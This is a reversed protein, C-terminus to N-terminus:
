MGFKTFYKNCISMANNFTLKESDFIEDTLQFDKMASVGLVVDAVEDPLITLALPAPLFMEKTKGAEYVSADLKNARNVLLIMAVPGLLESLRVVACEPEDNNLNRLIAISGTESPVCIASIKSIKCFAALLDAKNVYTSIVASRAKQGTLGELTDEFSTNEEFKKAAEEAEKSRHLTTMDIAEPIQDGDKLNDSNNLEESKTSSSGSSENSNEVNSSSDINNVDFEREFNALAADLEEDTFSTRVHSNDKSDYSSDEKSQNNQDSQANDNASKNQNDKSDPMSDQGEISDKSNDQEQSKADGSM